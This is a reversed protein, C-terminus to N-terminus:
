VFFSFIWFFHIFHVAAISEDESDVTLAKVDTDHWNNTIVFNAEPPAQHSPWRLIASGFGIGVILHMSRSFFLLNTIEFEPKAFEHM